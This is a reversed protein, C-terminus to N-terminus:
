ISRRCWATRSPPFCLRPRRVGHSRQPTALEQLDSRRRRRQADAVAARRLAETRALVIQQAELPLPLERQEVEGVQVGLQHREIEALRRGVDADPLVLAQR